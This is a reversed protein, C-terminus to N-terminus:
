VNVEEVYGDKPDCQQKQDMKYIREILRWKDKASADSHARQYESVLTEWEAQRPLTALKSM